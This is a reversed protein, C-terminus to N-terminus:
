KIFLLFHQFIAAIIIIRLNFNLFKFFKLSSFLVQLNIHFYIPQFSPLIHLIIKIISLYNKFIVKLIFSLSHIISITTPYRIHFFFFSSAHFEHGLFKLFSQIIKILFLFFFFLKHIRIIIM